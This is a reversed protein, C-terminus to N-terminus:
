LAPQAELKEQEFVRMVQTCLFDVHAECEPSLSYTLGRLTHEAILGRRVLLRKEVQLFIEFDQLTFAIFPLVSGYLDYARADEGAKKARYVRDLIELLPVGPMLGCIGLPIAELMYFGGWGELIGVSDGVRDRIRALKDIILPEELKAYSFNPHNRHLTEIFEADITPGGPNFDQILIPVDVADCITGCFRLVDADTTAFMRPIAFSIVDAGISAYRKALQAAVGASGHNAQTVVPIRGANAEIAIGIVREREAETLKYFESGYAPLCMAAAGHTATFEALRALSKEDISEDKHFPVPLVPVVGDINIM